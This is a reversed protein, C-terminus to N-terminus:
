TSSTKYSPHIFGERVGPNVVSRKIVDTNSMNEMKQKTNKQKTRRRITDKGRFQESNVITTLVYCEECEADGYEM